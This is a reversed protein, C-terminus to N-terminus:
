DKSTGYNTKYKLINKLKFQNIIQKYTPKINKM